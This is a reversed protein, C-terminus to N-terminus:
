DCVWLGARTHRWGCAVTSAATSLPRLDCQVEAFCDHVAKDDGKKAALQTGLERLYDIRLQHM